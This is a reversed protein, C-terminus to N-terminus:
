QNTRDLIISEVRLEVDLIAKVREAQARRDYPGVRVTYFRGSSTTFSGISVPYHPKLRQELRLASDPNQYSILRVYFGPQTIEAVVPEALQATAPGSTNAPRSVEPRPTATSSSEVGTSVDSQAAIESALPKSVLRDFDIDDLNDVAAKTGSFVLKPYDVPNAYWQPVLWILAGLWIVAGTLRNKTLKDM